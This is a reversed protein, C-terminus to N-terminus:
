MHADAWWGCTAGNLLPHGLARESFSILDCLRQKDGRQGLRSLTKDKSATGVPFSCSRHPRDQFCSHVERQISNCKLLKGKEQTCPAVRSLFAESTHCLNQHEPPFYPVKTAWLTGSPHSELGAGAIIPLADLKQAGGPGKVRHCPRVGAAQEHLM